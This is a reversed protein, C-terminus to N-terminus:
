DSNPVGTSYLIGSINQSPIDKGLSTQLAICLCKKNYSCLISDFRFLNSVQAVVVWSNLRRVIILNKWSWYHSHVVHPPPTLIPPISSFFFPTCEREGEVWRSQTNSPPTNLLIPTARSVRTIWIRCRPKITFGSSSSRRLRRKRCNYRFTFMFTFVKEYIRLCTMVCFTHPPPPPTLSAKLCAAIECFHLLQFNSNAGRYVVGEGVECMRQWVPSWTTWREKKKKKKILAM